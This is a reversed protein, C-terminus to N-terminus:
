RRLDPLHNFKAQFGLTSGCTIELGDTNLADGDRCSGLVAVSRNRDKLQVQFPSSSFSSQIQLANM